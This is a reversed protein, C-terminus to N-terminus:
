SYIFSDDWEAMTVHMSIILLVAPSYNDTISPKDGNPISYLINIYISVQIYIASMVYSFCKNKFSCTYAVAVFSVKM